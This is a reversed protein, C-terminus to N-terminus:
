IWSTVVIMPMLVSAFLQSKVEPSVTSILGMTRLGTETSIATKLGSAREM